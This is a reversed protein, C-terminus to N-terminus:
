AMEAVRELEEFSTRGAAALIAARDSLPTMGAALARARLARPSERALIGERLDDDVHLIEAVAIRGRYGTGRCDGCGRGRRGVVDGRLAPHRARLAAGPVAPEACRPCVQRLLRQAVVGNLASTLEYPDVDMHHFRALVDFVTNAHISSMVLHGTLAAQVAIQATERDRIEGVLLTDPDHRLIARLGRAFTLGTRENVPVQLVGALQYEVPDEITIIKQRGTNVESLAAYLTTTKGSGTPGTVLLMGHPRRALARLAVLEDDGFGLRALDLSSREDALARRDLIRLVADEGHASPMVSVRFDVDRGEIRVRFRGDQPLRREGVDLQGLVKIRSIVQEALERGDIAGGPALVGDLRYQIRAGRPTSEVHIDSAASRFADFLTSGLLRVAPNPEVSLSALGIEEVPAEGASPPASADVGDMARMEAGHRGLLADFDADRVWAVRAGDALRGQLWDWASEGAGASLVACPVGDLRGVAVRRRTARAFDVADFDLTMAHLADISWEPLGPWPPAAGDDATLVRAPLPANM